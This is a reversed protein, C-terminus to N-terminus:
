IKSTKLKNTFQLAFFMSITALLIFSLVIFDNKLWINNKLITPLSGIFLAATTLGFSLGKNQPLINLIAILTVPMTFNFIFAGLIGLIPTLSYFALLPASILLGGVGVKILGYKDALIGGFVKGLFLSAILVYLLYQNQKWPFDISLGILSRVIIPIMVLIIILIGYNSNIKRISDNIRIFDPTNIYYVLCCLLLLLIPFILPNISFQSISLFSGITLGVAGPAVYIGSYTAKKDKLSLVLSGGGVHFLANGFSVIILAVLINNWLLFSLAIFTLGIMAALKPNLIRDILLGLPVQLVFAIANYTLMAFIVNTNLELIGLLLYACAADVVLHAIAYLSIFPMIRFPNDQRM